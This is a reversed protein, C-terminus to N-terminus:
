QNFKQIFICLYSFLKFLNTYLYLLIFARARM